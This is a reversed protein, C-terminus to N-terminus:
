RELYRNEYNNIHPTLFDSQKTIQLLFYYSSFVAAAVTRLPNKVFIKSTLQQCHAGFFVHRRWVGVFSLSRRVARFTTCCHKLPM